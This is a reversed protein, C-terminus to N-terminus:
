KSCVSIYAYALECYATSEGNFELSLVLNQMVKIWTPVLNSNVSACFRIKEVIEVM